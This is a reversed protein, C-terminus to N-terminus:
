EVRALEADAHEEMFRIIEDLMNQAHAAEGSVVAVGITLTQHMEQTAVESVSANFRQRTRDILSRRIQRKDKLSASHPIYFTLKASLTHM